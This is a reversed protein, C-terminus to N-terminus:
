KNNYYAWKGEAQIIDKIDDYDFPCGNATDDLITRGLRIRNVRYCGDKDNSCKPVPVSILKSPIDIDLMDVSYGSESWCNNGTPILSIVSNSEKTLVESIQKLIECAIGNYEM